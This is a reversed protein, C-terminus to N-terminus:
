DLLLPAIFAFFFGVLFIAVSIIYIYFSMKRARVCALAL